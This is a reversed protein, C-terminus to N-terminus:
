SILGLEKFVQKTFGNLHQDQLLEIPTWVIMSIEMDIETLDLHSLKTDRPVYEYIYTNRNLSLIREFIITSSPEYSTEEKLERRIATQLNENRNASGKPIGLFNNYSQVLLVNEPNEKKDFVVVGIRVANRFPEDYKFRQENFISDNYVIHRHYAINRIVEQFIPMRNLTPAKYLDIEDQNKPPNHEFQSFPTWTVIIPSTDSPTARLFVSPEVSFFSFNSM